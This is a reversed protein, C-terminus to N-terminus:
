DNLIVSSPVNVLREALWETNNLHTWFCDSNISLKHMPLWVPRTMVGNNNTYELMALQEDKNKTLVTNLWYNSKTNKPECVFKLDNNMGWKQYRDALQRKNEIFSPLLELQAVVLAANLNPMRYNYGTENHVFEWKHPVKASTTIHKAYVALEEDNTLVVGGGGATLIKNGNFSLAALKGITGTHQQKYKSGLSEAADEVLIINYHRCIDNIKDLDVPFGFTHMPLCARITNNTKKNWCYGDDRIECYEDLFIQLSEASLGLTKLDVDVFVPDANCYRIANCTAIFTLSQTIVEDGSTVGALKLAIHLAATGNVTAVAYKAGTTDVISNEFKDVYAGVSSVYTSDIADAVYKKENGIFRPEHLPIFDNTKYIDKVFNVFDKFM